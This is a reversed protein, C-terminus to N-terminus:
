YIETATWYAVIIMKGLDLIWSFDQVYATREYRLKRQLRAYQVLLFIRGNPRGGVIVPPGDPRYAVISSKVIASHRGVSLSSLPSYICGRCGRKPRTNPLFNVILDSVVAINSRLRVESPKRIGSNCSLNITLVPNCKCSKPCLTEIRVLSSTIM